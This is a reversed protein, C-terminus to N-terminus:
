IIVATHRLDTPLLEEALVKDGASPMTSSGTVPPARAAHEHRIPGLSPRLSNDRHLDGLPATLEGAPHPAIADLQDPPAPQAVV